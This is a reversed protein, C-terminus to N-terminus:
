GKPSHGDLWDAIRRLVEGQEPENHTEHYLGEFPLYTVDGRVRRAFAATAAPDTIRDATGHVLLTPCPLHGDFRDLWQAAELTGIGLAASLRGHVLPDDQYRQVVTPDRSIAALELGNPLTLSPYVKRLLKGVAVKAGGQPYTERLFPSTAILGRIGPKRRLAYNLVLNGGLSHGYLFVPLAPYRREAESLLQGVDDLLAALGAAHGRKGGSRGHGPLDVGVFGYARRNLYDAVHAYRGVHEGLGHVFAIVARPDDPAWLQAHLATGAANTWELQKAM